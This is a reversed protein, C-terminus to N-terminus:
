YSLGAQAECMAEWSVAAYHKRYVSVQEHGLLEIVVGEQIGLDDHRRAFTRRLRHSTFKIGTYHALAKCTSKLTNITVTDREMIKPLMRRFEDHIPLELDKRYKVSTFALRDAQVHEMRLQASDSIRTGQYLGSYILKYEAATRCADLLTHVEDLTLPKNPRRPNKVTSLSLVELAKAADVRKELVGYRALARLAVLTGNKTSPHFNTLRFFRRVDRVPDGALIDWRDKGLYRELRQLNQDYILATTKTNGLEGVIYAAFGDGAVSLIRSPDGGLDARLEEAALAM